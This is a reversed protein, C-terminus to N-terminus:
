GSMNQSRWLVPLVINGHSHQQMHSSIFDWRVPLHRCLGMTGLSKHLCVQMEKGKGKGDKEREEKGGEWKKVERRGSRRGRGM